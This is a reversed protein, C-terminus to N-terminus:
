KPSLDDEREAERRREKERHRRVRETADDVGSHIGRLDSLSPLPEVVIRGESETILVEGPADIGYKERLHKPITTQGKSSV